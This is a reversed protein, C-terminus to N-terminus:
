FVFRPLSRLYSSQPLVLDPLHEFIVFFTSSKRIFDSLQEFIQKFMEWNEKFKGIQSNSFWWSVLSRRSPETSPKSRMKWDLRSRLTATQFFYHRRRILVGKIASVELLLFLHSNKVPFINGVKWILSSKKESFHSRNSLLALFTHFPSWISFHASRKPLTTLIVKSIM